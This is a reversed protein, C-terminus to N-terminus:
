RKLAELEIAHHPTREVFFRSGVPDAAVLRDWCIPQYPCAYGISPNCRDFTQPFVVDLISEPTPTQEASWRHMDIEMERHYRQEFFAHTLHPNPFILPTMPFNESLMEEPMNAIWQEAGGPQIMKEWGKRYKYSVARDHLGPTAYGWVLPSALDKGGQKWGKYLGVVVAGDINRELARSTAFLGSHLQVAYQWSSLWRDNKAGTSKYEVYWVQGDPREVVLDPTCLFTLGPRVEYAIEQEISIITTGPPCLTPWVVRKFGLLLGKVLARQEPDEITEAASLDIGDGRALAALQEHIITGVQLPVSKEVPELGIGGWVTQYYRKRRCAWDAEVASRSFYVM